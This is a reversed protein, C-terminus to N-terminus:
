NKLTKQRTALNYVYRLWLKSIVQEEFNTMFLNTTITVM